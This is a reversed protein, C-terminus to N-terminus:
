AASNRASRMNSCGIAAAARIWSDRYHINSDGVNFNTFRLSEDLRGNILPTGFYRSPKRDAYDTSLTWAVNDASQVRVAATRAGNPRTTM